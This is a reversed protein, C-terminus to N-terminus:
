MLLLTLLAPTTWQVLSFDTVFSIMKIKYVPLSVSINGPFKLLGVM